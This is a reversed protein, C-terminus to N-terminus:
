WKCAAEAAQLVKGGQQEPWRLRVRGARNIVFQRLLRGTREENCLTFTGNSAYPQGNREWAMYPKNRFSGFTLYTRAPLSLGIQVVEEGVDHQGDGDEDLFLMLEGVWRPGCAQGDASPCMVVRSQRLLAMDRGSELMGLLGNSVATIEAKRRVPQLASMGWGLLVAIVAVVVLLEVLTFGHRLRPGSGQWM